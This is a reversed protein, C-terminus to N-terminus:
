EGRSKKIEKIIWPIIDYLDGELAFTAIKMMPAEPDKNIAVIIESSGMGVLHQIQGSIGCAFYIKPAVTRGTQGVQHSYPIWGADVAARSSGVAGGITEAFEEILRFGEPKGLGRGGSCIIDAESLNVKATTDAVFRLFKVREYFTLGAPNLKTLDHRKKVIEGKRTSDKQARKFVKHRVTAMQPRHRPTLITAMINGGFAPRTQHLNRSSIEVDLATCDATLGTDIKAAVRSAFSRGINTAGMIVIEPKEDKILHALVEAYPDDRFESFLPDDIVYVKDAGHLIIDNAHHEIKNGILVACLQTNLKNALVRGENLLEYAVPSIEGHRQEAYIWVNRYTDFDATKPGREEKTIVIASFRKCAEVCAGCYNCKSLDIVALKQKKPHDPREILTIASFPCSKVCLSCGTCKEAFIEIKTPM